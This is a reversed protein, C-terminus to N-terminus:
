KPLLKALAANIQQLTAHDGGRDPHHRMVLERYRQRIAADDIPDNLELLALADARSDHRALAMWFKGLLDDVQTSDTTELNTIDRYYERVADAQSLKSAGSRYPWLRIELASIQLIGTKAQYYDAQLQYLCHFLLFHRQFLILSDPSSTSFYSLNQGLAQLFEYESIGNPHNGLVQQIPELLTEPAPYQISM